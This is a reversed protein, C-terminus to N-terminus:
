ADARPGPRRAASRRGRDARRAPDRLRADQGLRDPIERARRPRRPCRRDRRAPDRVAAHDGAQSLSGVVARSVGLDAFSQTSMYLEKAASPGRVIRSAIASGFRQSRSGLSSGRPRRRRGSAVVYCNRRRDIPDAHGVTTPRGFGRSDLDARSAPASSACGGSPARWAGSSSGCSPRQALGWRYLKARLLALRDRYYRAEAELLERESPSNM